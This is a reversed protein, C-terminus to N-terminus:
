VDSFRGSALIFFIAGVMWYLSDASDEDYFFALLSIFAYIFALVLCISNLM